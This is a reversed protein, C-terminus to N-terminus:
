LVKVEITIRDFNFGACRDIAHVELQFISPSIKM